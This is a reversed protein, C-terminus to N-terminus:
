ATSLEMIANVLDGDNNKLATIAASRSVDAQQMVLDIDKDEIGEASVDESADTSKASDKAAVAGSAAGAASTPMRFQEAAAAAAQASLDEIKAEGFIVYTDSNTSKYVDPSSFVFLIQSFCPLM